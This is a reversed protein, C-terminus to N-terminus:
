QVVPYFDEPSEIEDVRSEIKAYECEENKFIADTVHLCGYYIRDNHNLKSLDLENLESESMTVIDDCYLYGSSKSDGIFLDKCYVVGVYHNGHLYSDKISKDSVSMPNIMLRGLFLPGSPGKM